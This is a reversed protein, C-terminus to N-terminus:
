SSRRREGPAQEAATELDRVRQELEGVTLASVMARSIAAMATAQGPTIAGRHVETLAQELTDFVPLLRPPVLGHLRVIKARNRAEARKAKLNPDHAWCFQSAPLAQAQCPEGNRKTSECQNRTTTM